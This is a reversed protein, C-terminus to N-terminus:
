SAPSSRVSLGNLGTYYARVKSHAGEDSAATVVPYSIVQKVQLIGTRYKGVRPAPGTVDGSLKLDWIMDKDQAVEALQRCDVVARFGHTGEGEVPFSKNHEGPTGQGKRVAALLQTGDPLESGYVTGTVVLFHDQDIHVGTVEAYGPMAWQRLRLGGDPDAFPVLVGATDPLDAQSAQGTTQPLPPSVLAGAQLPRVSQPSNTHRVALRWDGHALGDTSGIRCGVMSDTSGDGERVIPYVHEAAKGQDPVCVLELPEPLNPGEDPFSVDLAQDDRVRCHARSPLARRAVLAALLEEYTGTRETKRLRAALETARVAMVNAHRPDTILERLATAMARPSSPPVCIGYEQEGSLLERTGVADQAVIPLGMGLARLLGAPHADDAAPFLTVAAAAWDSTQPVSGMLLVRDALGLRQIEARLRKRGPGEGWIRLQWDPASKAAIGFAEVFEDAWAANAALPGYAMIVKSTREAAPLSARPATCPVHAGLPGFRDGSEQYVLAQAESCYVVGDFGASEVPAPLSGACELCGCVRLAVKLADPRGYRAVISELAPDACVLVDHGLGTLLDLLREEVLVNWEGPVEKLVTPARDFSPALRDRNSPLDRFDVLSRNLVDPLAYTAGDGRLTVIEVDHNVSLAAAATLAGHIGTGGPCRGASLVTVRM